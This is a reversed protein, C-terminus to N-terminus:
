AAARNENKEATASESQVDHRLHIWRRRDGCALAVCDIRAMAREALCQRDGNRLKM